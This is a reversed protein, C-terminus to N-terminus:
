LARILVVLGALATAGGAVRTASAAGMLGAALGLAIGVLHLLATAVVFGAAYGVLSVGAPLESGHAHGHFVAFGGVLAMAAAAPMGIRFAVAAGLVVVSLGIAVEVLPLSAGATALAFGGAAALVFAAPVLGMARGGLQAALLGVAVMALLHDPGGLPHAFGDAFGAGHGFGTHALAPTAVLAAAASGLAPLSFRPKM